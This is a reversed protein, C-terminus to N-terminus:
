DKITKTAASLNYKAASKPQSTEVSPFFAEFGKAPTQKPEKVLSFHTRGPLALYFSLAFLV